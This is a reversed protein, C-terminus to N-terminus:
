CDQWGLVSMVWGGHGEGGGRRGGRARDWPFRCIDGLLHGALVRNSISLSDKFHFHFHISDQFTLDHVNFPFTITLDAKMRRGEGLSM